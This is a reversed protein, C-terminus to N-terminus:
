GIKHHQATKGVGVEWYRVTNTIFLLQGKFKAPNHFISIHM